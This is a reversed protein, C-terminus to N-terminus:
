AFDEKRVIARMDEVTDLHPAHWVIGVFVLQTELTCSVHSASACSM